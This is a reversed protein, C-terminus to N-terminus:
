RECHQTLILPYILLGMLDNLKESVPKLWLQRQGIFQGFVM